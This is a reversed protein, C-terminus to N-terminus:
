KGDLVQLPCAGCLGHVQTLQATAVPLAVARRLFRGSQTSDTLWFLHRNPPPLQNQLPPPDRPACPRSSCLCLSPWDSGLASQPPVLLSPCHCGRGKPRGGDEELNGQVHGTKPPCMLAVLEMWVSVAGM